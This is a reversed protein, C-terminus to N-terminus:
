SACRGCPMVLSSHAHASEPLHTLAWLDAARGIGRGTEAATVPEPAAGDVEKPGELLQRPAGRLWCGQLAACLYTGDGSNCQMGDTPQEPAAQRLPDM